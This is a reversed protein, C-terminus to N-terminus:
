FCDVENLFNEVRVLLNFVVFFGISVFIEILINEKSEFLIICINFNENVCCRVM